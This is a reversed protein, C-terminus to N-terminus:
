KRVKKEPTASLNDLVLTSLDLQNSLRDPYQFDTFPTVRCALHMVNDGIIGPNSAEQLLDRLEITLSRTGVREQYPYIIHLESLSWEPRASNTIRLVREGQMAARPEISIQLDISRHDTSNNIRNLELYGTNGLDRSITVDPDGWLLPIRSLDVELCVRSPISM